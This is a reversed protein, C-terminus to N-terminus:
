AKKRTRRLKREPVEFTVAPELHFGLPPSPDRKMRDELSEWFEPRARDTPRAKATEADISTVEVTGWTEKTLTHVVWLKSGVRLGCGPQAAIVMQVTGADEGIAVIPYLFEGAAADDINANSLVLARFRNIRRELDRLYRWWRWLYVAITGLAALGVALAGWTLLTRIKANPITWALVAILLALIPSRAIAYAHHLSGRASSTLKPRKPLQYLQEKTDHNAM